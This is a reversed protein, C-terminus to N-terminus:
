VVLKISKSFASINSKGIIKNHEALCDYTCTVTFVYLWCVNISIWIASEM